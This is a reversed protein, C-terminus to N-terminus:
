WATAMGGMTMTTLKKVRSDERGLDDRLGTFPCLPYTLHKRGEPIDPNNRNKGLYYELMRTTNFTFCNVVLEIDVEQYLDKCRAYHTGSGAMRMIWNKEGNDRRLRAEGNFQHPTLFLINEVSFFNRLRSLLDKLDQGAVGQVCGRTNLKEMYDLVFAHLEYGQSKWDDVANLINVYDTDAPNSRIFKVHYGNRGLNAKVHAAMQDYTLDRVHNQYLEDVEDSAKSDLGLEDRHDLYWCARYVDKITAHNEAEVSWFVILPIKNPDKLVPTNHMAFQRVLAKSTGTKYSFSSGPVLITEGLGFKGSNGALRNIGQMGTQLGTKGSAAENIDKFVDTMAQDDYIDVESYGRTKSIESSGLNKYPELKGMMEQIVDGVSVNARSFRTMHYATKILDIARSEDIFLRIDHRQKRCYNTAAQESMETKIGDELGRYLAQDGDTNVMLRQLLENQDIPEEGKHSLMRNLTTRLETLPNVGTFDANATQTTDGSADMITLADRILQHSNSTQSALTSERYVLSIAKVLLLRSDM